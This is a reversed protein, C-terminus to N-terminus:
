IQWMYLCARRAVLLRARSWCGPAVTDITRAREVGRHAIRFARQASCLARHPPFRATCQAAPEKAHRQLATPPKRHPTPTPSARHMTRTCQQTPTRHGNPPPICHYTAINKHYYQLQYASTLLRLNGAHLHASSTPTRTTHSQRPTTWPYISHPRMPHWSTYSHNSTTPPSSSRHRQTSIMHSLSIALSYRLHKYISLEPPTEM